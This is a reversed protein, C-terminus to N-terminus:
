AAPGLRTLAVLQNAEHTSISLVSAIEKASLGKETLNRIYSYKEPASPSLSTDAKSRMAYLRPTLFKNTTEADEISKQFKIAENHHKPIETTTDNFQQQKATIKTLQGSLRKNENRLKIIMFLLALSLLCVIIYPIPLEGSGINFFRKLGATIYPIQAIFM